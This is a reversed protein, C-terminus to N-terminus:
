GNTSDIDITQHPHTAGSRDTTSFSAIQNLFNYDIKLELGTSHRLRKKFDFFGQHLFGFPIWPTKVADDDVM